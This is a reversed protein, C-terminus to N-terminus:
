RGQFRREAVVRFMREHRDESWTYLAVRDIIQQVGRVDLAAAWAIGSDRQARSANRQARALTVHARPARQECSVLAARSLADRRAAMCAEVEERGLALLASLASYSRPSGMPVVEGLSIAIPAQPAAALQEDLAALARLAAQEACDGLFSLTLHVDQAHYRRLGAPPDPLERVFTGDLPFAFFWNPRPM